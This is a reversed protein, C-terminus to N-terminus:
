LNLQREIDELEIIDFAEQLTPVILWESNMNDDAVIVFSNDGVLKKGFNAFKSLIAIDSCEIELLNLIFHRCNQNFLSTVFSIDDLQESLKVVLCEKEITSSYM